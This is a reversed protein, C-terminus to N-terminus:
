TRTPSRTTRPPTKKRPQPPPPNAPNRRPPLHPSSPPTPPSRRPRSTRDTPSPPSTHSTANSAVCADIWGNAGGEMYLSFYLVYEYYERTLFDRVTKAALKDAGEKEKEDKEKEAGDPSATTSAAENKENEAQAKAEAISNLRMCELLLERNIELLLTVREKERVESGPSLPTAINSGANAGQSGPPFNPTQPTIVTGAQAGQNNNPTQLHTQNPNQPTSFQSQATANPPTNQPVNGFPSARPGSQTPTSSSPPPQMRQAQHQSNMNPANMAFSPANSTTPMFSINAGTSAPM